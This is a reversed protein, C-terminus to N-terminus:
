IIRRIHIRAGNERIQAMAAKFKEVEHEERVYAKVVRIASVNEQVSANMDDYKEFISRFTKMTRTVIVMLCIALASRIQSTILSFLLKVLGSFGFISTASPLM